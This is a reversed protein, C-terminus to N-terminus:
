HMYGSSIHLYTYEARNLSFYGNMSGNHLVKVKAYLHNIDVFRNYENTIRVHPFHVLIFGSSFKIDGITDVIESCLQNLVLDLVEGRLNTLPQSSYTNYDGMSMGLVERSTYASIPTVSLWSKLEDVSIFGQMDVKDEGFFDNFIALVQNPKDMLLSYLEEIKSEILENM